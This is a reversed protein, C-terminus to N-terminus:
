NGKILFTHRLMMKKQFFRKIKSRSSHIPDLDSKKKLGPRVMDFDLDPVKSILAPCEFDSQEPDLYSCRSNSGFGRMIGLWM